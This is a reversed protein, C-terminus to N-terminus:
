PTAIAWGKRKVYLAITQGIRIADPVLVRYGGDSQTLYPNGVNVIWVQAGTAPRKTGGYQELVQGQLWNEARAFGGSMLLMLVLVILSTRTRM